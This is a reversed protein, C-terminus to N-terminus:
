IPLLGRKHLIPLFVAPAIVGEAPHVWRALTEFGTIRGSKACVQPQFRGRLEGKDLAQEVERSLADSRSQEREPKPAQLEVGSAHTGRTARLADHAARIIDRAIM